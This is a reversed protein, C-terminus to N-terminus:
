RSRARRPPGARHPDGPDPGARPVAQRPLRLRRDRGRARRAGGPRVRDADRDADAARRPDAAGGRRRRPAADERGHDRRGARAHRALEVAEEGDRAEGCVEYGNAELLTACTSASSRRTRPSWSARPRRRRRARAVGRARRRTSSCRAPPSASSRRSGTSSPPSSRRRTPQARARAGHVAARRGPDRRRRRGAAARPLRGAGVARPRRRDPVRRSFFASRLLSTAGDDLVPLGACADLRAAAPLRPGRPRLRLGGRRLRARDGCGVLQRYAERASVAATVTACANAMALGPDICTSTGGTRSCRSTPSSSPSRRRCAPARSSSTTSRGAARAGSCRSGSCTSATSPSTGRSRRSAARGTAAPPAPRAPRRSAGPEAAATVLLPERVARANGLRSLSTM